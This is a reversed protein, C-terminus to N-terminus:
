GREEAEPRHAIVFTVTSSTSVPRDPLRARLAIALARHDGHLREPLHYKPSTALYEALHALDAFRFRHEEHIVRDVQLVSATLEPLNDSHATAYLSPRTTAAPDLGSAAVLQDLAAYSDASKTVLIATGGPALCRAIERLVLEPRASHYLCFAAVVLDVAADHFPLRHFDGCVFRVWASHDTVRARTALLMTPAIDVAVLRFRPLREALAKTTTGRGCGLDVVVGGPRPRARTTALGAIVEDVHRGARKARRLATTRQALREATAYLFGRALAPDVFPRDQSDV